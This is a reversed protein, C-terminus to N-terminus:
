IPWEGEEDATHGPCPTNPSFTGGDADCDAQPANTWQWCYTTPPSVDTWICSNPGLTPSESPTTFFNRAILITLSYSMFMLIFGIIASTILKRAKEIKEPNGGATMWTFGGFVLLYLLIIGTLGLIAKIIKGSQTAIDDQKTLANPAATDLGYYQALHTQGQNIEEASISALTLGCGIIVTAILIVAVTIHYRISRDKVQSFQSDM